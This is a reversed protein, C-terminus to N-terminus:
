IGGSYLSNRYFNADADRLGMHHLVDLDNGSDYEQREDSSFLSRIKETVGSRANAKGDSAIAVGIDKKSFGAATLADIAREAQPESRFLGGATRGAAVDSQRNFTNTERAM